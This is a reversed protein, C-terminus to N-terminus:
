LTVGAHDLLQASQEQLLRDRGTDVPEIVPRDSGFVLQAAGVRRATAEIAVPGYSSTDYFCLRDRLDIAPGGRAALRETLLPAGGALMPFLVKLEPHERRGRTAFTLWAAQMQSVYDTLASWWLPESLSQGCAHATPSGPHVLVTVGAEAVRELVPGLAALADYGALAPAAVSVGACGRAILRDVDDAEPRDLPLPGWAAFEEGLEQVGTLHADILPLAQERPLAEIGIPSSIAILALDLGDEHVLAARREPAEAALDILYPHEGASHLVTLGDSRRVFPLADRRSLAEILADTWLHQHVDIRMM